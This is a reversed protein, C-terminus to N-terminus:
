PLEEIQKLYEALKEPSSYRRPNFCIKWDDGCWRITTLADPLVSAGYGNSFRYLKQEGEAWNVTKVLM